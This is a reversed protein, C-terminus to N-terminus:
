FGGLFTMNVLFHTRLACFKVFPKITSGIERGNKLIDEFKKKMASYVNTGMNKPACFITVGQRVSPVNLFFIKSWLSRQVGL